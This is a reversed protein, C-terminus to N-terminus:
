KGKAWTALEKYSVEGCLMQKTEFNFFLPAGGCRGQDCEDFKKANEPKTADLLEVEIGEEELLQNLRPLMADCYDCNPSYFMILNM